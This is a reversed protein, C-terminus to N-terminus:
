IKINIKEINNKRNKNESILIYENSIDTISKNGALSQRFYQNVYNPKIDYDEITKEDNLIMDNYLLEIEGTILELIKIM